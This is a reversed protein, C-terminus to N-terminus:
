RLAINLLQSVCEQAIPNQPLLTALRFVARLSLYDDLMGDLTLLKANSAIVTRILNPDEEFLEAMEDIHFLASNELLLLEHVTERITTMRNLEELLRDRQFHSRFEEETLNALTDIMDASFSNM